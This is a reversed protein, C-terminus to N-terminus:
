RVLIQTYAARQNGDLDEVIFGVVYEGAAAYIESWTFPQGSFVLTGGEQFATGTVQGAADLDLWKEKVTFTDGAQPIIERPAGAEGETFGFVHQLVGNQFYLRASRQTNDASYTYVGDVSYVAEEASVGYREPNMLAVVSTQGDSIEFVTPDWELSMNFSGDEKWVPYYVGSVERTQASELYDSDALFISNSARDYYGVLLYIYGINQGEVQATLTVPQGPSASKGSATIASISIQGQGPSRSLASSPPVAETRSNLDFGVDNYHFALFDDWLSTQAFHSAVVTYSQPGSLPSRYLTSNPFYIAVGTAGRKNPGHKEAIVANQIAGLVRDAAQSVERSGDERKLVQVFIGLDIYPSPGQKSFINTFSLSFNRASAVSSQDANQLTYALANVSDNLGTMADLDLATLTVDRGLQNALDAPSVDAAPGFLGGMPSGQRLFEARAEDDVIRQDDQIYSEVVIRGLDGGDMGPNENLTSLFSAYAWGLAPETEESAIAFRAHKQLMTFVELSGMLCADMGIVEFWDIGASSRAESLAQDLEMLYINDGGVRNVLPARSSDRTRSTPDSWGGPWGMGHDSLILAYKDAPYNAAAWSIFDALTQGSAMNAEGLEEVLDSRLRTLDDDQRVFYRRTSTWNGDGSYGGQYRDIQAVIQVQDTSGVKEVENLDTYIDQELIQDDADAYLLVTWKDGTSGEASPARTRTPQPRTTATPEPQAINEEEVPQQALPPEDAAPQESAALEGLLDGGGILSYIVFGAVLLLILWVPMRSCGPLRGGTGGGTFGGGSSGGGDTRRRSPAQAREGSAPRQGGAGQRRRKVTVNDSGDSNM